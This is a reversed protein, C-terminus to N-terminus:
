AIYSTVGQSARLFGVVPGVALPTPAKNANDFAPTFVTSIVTLTLSVVM